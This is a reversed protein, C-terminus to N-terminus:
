IGEPSPRPVGPVAGSLRQAVAEEVTGSLRYGVAERLRYGVAGSVWELRRPRWEPAVGTGKIM